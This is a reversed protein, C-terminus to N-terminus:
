MVRGKAPALDAEIIVQTPMGCTTKCEVVYGPRNGYDQFKKIKAMQGLFAYHRITTNGVIIVRSNARFRHKM